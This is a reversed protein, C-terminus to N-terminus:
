RSSKFSGGFNQLNTIPPIKVVFTEASCSVVGIAFTSNAATIKNKGM